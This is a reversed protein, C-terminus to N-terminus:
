RNKVKLLVDSKLSEDGCSMPCGGGCKELQNCNKCGEDLYEKSRFRQLMEANEWIENIPTELINGLQYVPSMACRSLNGHFDLAGISYGWECKGFYQHYEEPIMCLPFSDVMVTEIGLDENIRKINEFGTVIEEQYITNDFQKGRYFPAIRQILVYDVSLGQNLVNEVSAYLLNHNHRMLNMVIGLKQDELRMSDYIRLNHIASKFADKKGCYADHIKESPGHVTWELASVYPAIEQVSSNKYNHTNSLVPVKLGLEDAYELLERIKSYEAPDGGVFNVERVGAKKLEFLIKKLKEFDGEEVKKTKDTAYCTPCKHSCENTLHLAISEIKHEMVADGKLHVYLLM